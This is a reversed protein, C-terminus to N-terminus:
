RSGVQGSTEDGYKRLVREAALETRNRPSLMLIAAGVFVEAGLTLALMGADPGLVAMREPGISGSAAVAALAGFGAVLGAVAFTIVVRPGLALDGTNAVMRSRVAWAAFAGAAVPILVVILSWMSTDEPLAAFIPVAPVVGLETGVPSVATGAGVAFGPGAIWAMTWIVFTPIYALQGLSLLTAGLGDVRLMEYLGVMDSASFFVAIAFLLAGAGVVAVVSMAAARVIHAPVVGWQPSRTVTAHIADVLGRDGERWATVLAGSLVGVFYILTPFLVAWTDDVGAERIGSAAMVLWSLAAVTATGSLVGLQWVFARASRMGSRWAFIFTFAALALPALSLTFNAADPDIGMGVTFSESLAIDIPVLHGFQWITAGAPWLLGWDGDAGIAVIWALTLPAFIIALGLAVALVADLAALAIVLPRRM